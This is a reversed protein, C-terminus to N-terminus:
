FSLFFALAVPSQQSTQGGCFPKRAASTCTSIWKLNFHLGSPFPSPHARSALQPPPPPSHSLTLASLLPVSGVSAGAGSHAGFVPRPKGDASQIGLPQAQAWGGMFAFDAACILFM